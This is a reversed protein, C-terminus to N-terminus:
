RRRIQVEKDSIDEMVLSRARALKRCLIGDILITPANSLPAMYYLVKLEKEELTAKVSELGYKEVVEISLGLNKGFEKSYPVQYNYEKAMNEIIRQQIEADLEGISGNYYRVILTNQKIDLVTYASSRNSYKRGVVFEFQSNM